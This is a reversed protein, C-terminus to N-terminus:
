GSCDTCAYSPVPALVASIQREHCMKICAIGLFRLYIEITAKFLSHLAKLSIDMDLSAQTHIM